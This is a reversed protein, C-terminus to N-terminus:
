IPEKMFGSESNMLKGAEYLIALNGRKEPKARENM